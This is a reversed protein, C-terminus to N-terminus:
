KYYSLAKKGMKTWVSQFVTKDVKENKVGTLPDNYYLSKEDMGTLLVAHQSFDAKVVKGNSTWNQSFTPNNFYVTIWVIVPRGSLITDELIGYNCGTLDLAKGPLYHNIVAKLAVPDISYGPSKGTIDGVFGIQPNGWEVIKGTSDRKMSTTDKKMISIVTAKDVKIGAYNLMMTLSTAECGNHYEPLQKVVPIDLLINKSVTVASAMKDKCLYVNEVLVSMSLFLMLMLLKLFKKM